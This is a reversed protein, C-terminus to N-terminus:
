FFNGDTYMLSQWTNIIEYIRANIPTYMCTYKLVCTCVSHMCLCANPVCAHMCTYVCTCECLCVHGDISVCVCHLACVCTYVCSHVCTRTYTCVYMHMCACSVCTGRQACIYVCVGTHVHVHMTCFVHIGIHARACRPGRICHISLPPRARACTMHACICVHTHMYMCWRCLDCTRCRRMGTQMKWLATQTQLGDM